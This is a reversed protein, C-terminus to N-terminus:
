SCACTGAIARIGNWSIAHAEAPLRSVFEEVGARSDADDVGHLAYWREFSRFAVVYDFSEVLARAIASDILARRRPEM